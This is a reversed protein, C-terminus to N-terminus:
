TTASRSGVVAVSRATLVDLRGPGKVWLGLPVGGREHLVPAHALDALGVPWEPDAPTVFRIGQRAARDLEADPDVQTLRAALDERLGRAAGQERLGALVAEAGLETVLGTLRPDGPEGVRSLVVRAAREADLSSM